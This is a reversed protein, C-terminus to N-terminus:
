APENKKHATWLILISFEGTQCVIKGMYPRFIMGLRLCTCYGCHYQSVPVYLRVRILSYSQTSIYSQVLSVRLCRTTLNRVLIAPNEHASKRIRVRVRVM